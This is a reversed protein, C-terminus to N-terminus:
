EVEKNIINKDMMKNDDMLQAIGCFGCEEEDCRIGFDEYALGKYGRASELEDYLDGFDKDHKEKSVMNKEREIEDFRENMEKHSMGMCKTMAIFVINNIPAIDVHGNRLEAHIDIHCNSCFVTFKTKALKRALNRRSFSLWKGLSDFRSEKDEPDLHHLQLVSINKDYGCRRCYPGVVMWFFRKNKQRLTEEM